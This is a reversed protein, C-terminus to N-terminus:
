PLTTEGEDDWEDDIQLDQEDRVHLWASLSLDPRDLFYFRTEYDGPPLGGAGVQFWIADRYCRDLTFREPDVSYGLHELLNEGYIPTGQIRYSGTADGMVFDEPRWPDGARTGYAGAKLRVHVTRVGPHEEWYLFRTDTLDSERKWSSEQLGDALYRIDWVYRANRQIDFDTLADKGLYSRYTMTGAYLGTGEAVTELYTLRSSRSLIEENRDPSKDRSSTIGEVPDQRNEPVYFTFTGGSSGDGAQFEQEEWTQEAASLGFPRLVRNLNCVKVSRLAAGTWECSLRVTVKALLREVPITGSDGTYTLRGAM